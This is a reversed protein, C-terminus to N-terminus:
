TSDATKRKSTAIAADNAPAKVPLYCQVSSLSPCWVYREPAGGERGGEGQTHVHHTLLTVSNVNLLCANQALSFVHSETRLRRMGCDLKWVSIVYNMYGNGHSCFASKDALLYPPPNPTYWWNTQKNM